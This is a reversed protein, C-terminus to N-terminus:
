KKTYFGSSGLCHKVLM